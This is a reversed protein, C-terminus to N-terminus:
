TIGYGGLCGNADPNLSFLTVLLLCRTTTTPLSLSLRFDSWRKAVVHPSFTGIIVPSCLPYDKVFNNRWRAIFSVISNTNPM